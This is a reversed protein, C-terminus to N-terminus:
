RGSKRREKGREGREIVLFRPLRQPNQLDAVAMGSVIRKAAPHALPQLGPEPRGPPAPQRGPDREFIVARMQDFNVFGAPLM